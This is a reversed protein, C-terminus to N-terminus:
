PQLTLVPTLSRPLFAYDNLELNSHVQVDQVPELWSGRRMRFCEYGLDTMMTMIQEQRERRFRGVETSLDYIPLIECTVIPM